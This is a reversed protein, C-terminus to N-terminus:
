ALETPSLSFGSKHVHEQFLVGEYTPSKSYRSAQNGLLLFLLLYCTQLGWTFKKSQSTAWSRNEPCFNFIPILCVTAGLYRLKFWIYVHVSICIYVSMCVIVDLCTHIHVTTKPWNRQGERNQNTWLYFSTKTLILSTVIIKLARHLSSPM